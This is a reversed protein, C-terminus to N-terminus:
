VILKQWNQVAEKSCRICQDVSVGIRYNGTLYCRPIAKQFASYLSEMRELHGVAYQPIAAHTRTFSIADPKLFIKLHRQIGLLAAQIAEEKSQGLDKLKITLRTEQLHKNHQTFVSSDFVVGLLDEGTDNPILYGFGEVQLVNKKYGFNLVIIGESKLSILEKALTPMDKIFLNGAQLAPLACFVYDARFEGQNTKVVVEKEEQIIEKAEQRYHISAPTKALLASTLQEIGERFSFLASLPAHPIYPSKKPARKKPLWNKLFGKTISGYKEEWEKLKPFLARISILRSDGGFIGVVMPDFLRQAVEDNFRRTVFEWVTEDGKKVPRKWETFLAKIFGQTLPSYFFALPNTPFKHLKENWWLYRNSPRNGSWIIEKTLGLEETLQLITPCRDIKFTRPGKEFHFGTTHDTHFMGGIRDSKELILIDLPLSTQSLYWAASLGSIGAGLVIVKKREMIVGYPLAIFVFLM